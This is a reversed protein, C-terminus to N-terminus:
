TQECMRSSCATETKLTVLNPGASHQLSKSCSTHWNYLFLAIITALWLLPNVKYQILLFQSSASSPLMVNGGFHRFFSIRHQTMFWSWCRSHFGSFKYIVHWFSCDVFRWSGLLRELAFKVNIAYFLWRM